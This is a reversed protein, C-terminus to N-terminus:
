KQVVFHLWWADRTDDEPSLRRGDSSAFVLPHPRFGAGNLQHLQSQLTTYHIVIGHDHAAANRISYTESDHRLKTYDEYNRVTRRAHFLAVVLRAALKV